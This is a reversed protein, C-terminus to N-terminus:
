RQTIALMAPILGARQLTEVQEGVSPRRGRVVRAELGARKNRCPPLAFLSGRMMMPLLRCDDGGDQKM